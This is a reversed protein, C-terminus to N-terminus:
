SLLRVINPRYELKIAIQCKATVFLRFKIGLQEILVIFVNLIFIHDNILITQNLSNQSLTSCFIFIISVIKENNVKLSRVVLYM